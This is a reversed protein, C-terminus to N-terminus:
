PHRRRRKASAKRGGQVARVLRFSPRAISRGPVRAGQPDRRVNVTGLDVVIAADGDGQGM